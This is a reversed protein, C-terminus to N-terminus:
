KGEALIVVRDMRPGTSYVNVSFPIRGGEPIGDTFEIKRVGGPLDGQYGSAIVSAYSLAKGPNVLEGSVKIWVGASDIEVAQNEVVLIEVPPQEAAFSTKLSFEARFPYGVPGKIFGILPIEKGNPLRDVLGAVPVGYSKQSDGVLFEGTLYYVDKGQNNTVNVLCWLDQEVTPYCHVKWDGVAVPTPTYLIPSPTEVPAPIVLTSGEKLFNLNVQPNAMQLAALTVGYRLAIYSGLDDKKVTYILPTPTPAIIAAIAGEGGSVPTRTSMVPLTSLTVEVRARPTITIPTVPSCSSIAIILIMLGLFASAKRELARM